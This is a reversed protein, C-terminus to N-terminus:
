AFSPPALFWSISEFSSRLSTSTMACLLIAAVFCLIKSIVNVAWDVPVNPYGFGFVAWLAFVAFM